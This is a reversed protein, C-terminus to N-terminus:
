WENAPEGQSFPPLLHKDCVQEPNNICVFKSEGTEPLPKMGFVVVRLLEDLAMPRRDYGPTHKPSRVAFFTSYHQIYDQSTFFNEKNLSRRSGHDGQIVITGDFKKLDSSLKSLLDGVVKYSCKVQELYDNYSGRGTLSPLIQARVSCEEDLVTPTHPLLLHIFYANGRKGSSFFNLNDYFVRTSNLPSAFIPKVLKPLGLANGVDNLRQLIKMRELLGSIIIIPSNGTQLMDIRYQICKGLRYGSEQDCYSVYNTEIVNIIYGQRSIKEFLGNPRMTPGPLSKSFSMPELPKFNLFSAVSPGTNNFRSYARGFVRFGQSTYKDLLEKSFERGQNVYSPIGEIGIHEDLIIHIYPPLTADVQEGVGLNISKEIPPIFQVFAGLWLVGFVIFLFQELHRRLSYLGLTLLTTSTLAVPLYRLGFPLKPLNDIQYFVLLSIFFAGFLAQILAGGFVVLIGILLGIVMLFLYSLLSEASLLQIHNYRLFPTLFVTLVVPGLLLYRWRSILKELM